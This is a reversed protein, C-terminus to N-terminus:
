RNKAARVRIMEALISVAIEEPTEAQIALGIPSHVRAFDDPRFGYQAELSQYVSDRKKRSGIMGIYGADTRLAQGLVTQDYLHGRTVIVLYSNEDILLGETAKDFSSLLIVQDASDMRGPNAFDERDDLVVTKFDVLPTMRSLAYGVHGAGFIFVAGSNCLAEIHYANAKCHLYGHKGGALADLVRQREPINGDFVGSVSGDAKLLWQPLDHMGDAHPLATVLWSRRNETVASFVERFFDLRTQVSADIFQLLVEIRGGCIMGMRGADDASLVFERVTAMRTSFIEAAIQRVRAEMIGGGVTGNIQGDSRVIMRAGSSRPASGARTLVTALVFNERKELLDIICKFLNM